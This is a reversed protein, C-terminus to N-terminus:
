TFLLTNSGSPAMNILLEAESGLEAILNKVTTIDGAAVAERLATHSSQRALEKADAILLDNNIVVLKVNKKVVSISIPPM